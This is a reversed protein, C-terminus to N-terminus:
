LVDGGRPDAPVVLAPEHVAETASWWGFDLGLVVGFQGALVGAVSSSAREGASATVPRSTMCRGTVTDHRQGRTHVGTRRPRDATPGATRIRRIHDLPCPLPWVVSPRYVFGVPYAM